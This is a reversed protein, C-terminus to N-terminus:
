AEVTENIQSLEEALVADSVLPEFNDDHWEVPGGTANIFGILDVHEPGAPKDVVVLENYRPLRCAPPGGKRVWPKKRTCVLEQGSKFRSM